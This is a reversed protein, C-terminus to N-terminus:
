EFHVAGSLAEAAPRPPEGELQVLEVLLAGDSTLVIAGEPRVEVIAGPAGARRGAGDPVERAKWIRITHEGLRCYAGPYPQGVARILNRISETTRSWDIRNDQPTRKRALTAAAHNQPSLAARGELIATLNREVLEVYAGTVREMVHSITDDRGVAIEVQDVIPGSDVDEELRFLTAGVRSEGNAIAWVTPSFGRYLPLLSDHIVFAGQTAGSLRGAPILYRWHVLLAADFPERWIPAVAPEDGRRSEHFPAKLAGARARLVEFYRPEAGHEPFSLITLRLDPRIRHIADLVALARPTAALLIM